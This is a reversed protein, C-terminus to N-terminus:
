FSSNLDLQVVDNGYQPGSVVQSSYWRASVWTNSAIGVNAGLIYGKANTGGLHFDTDNLSDLTSDSELYKYGFYANWDWKKHIVLEGFSAKVMYATDGGQYHGNIAPNIPGGLTGNNGIVEAGHDLIASRNFGLNKLFEGDIAIDFPDYSKILFQPHAEFVAFRSALGFYQPDASTASTQIVDRILDVTNGFQAFPFRTGDTACYAASGAQLACPGSVAGQVGTFDFFGVGLKAVYERSLKWQAGGQAALLYGDHSAFKNPDNTSFDFATNLVPFGGLTIFADLANALKPTYQIAVGDMSLDNNFILDTTFFPNPSRGIYATLDHRPTLTFFARDLYISYKSFDGPSGLTQNTSVPGNDSGTGFRIDSTIWDDLTAQVGFRARLRFRNRNETTNLFPPNAGTGNVYGDLDFPSGSNVSAYNIFGNYNGKDFLDAEYRARMDGYLKFRQTWEPLANPTAWGETEAQDMVQARVQDAIQKRIFDPVYTVRIEGPNPAPTPFNEAAQPQEEAPAAQAAHHGHRSPPATEQLLDGAQGPTLIGKKILLQILKVTQEDARAPQAAIAFSAALTACLATRGLWRSPKTMMTSFGTQLTNPTAHTM